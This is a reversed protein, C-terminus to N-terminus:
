ELNSTPHLRSLASHFKYDRPDLTFASDDEKFDCNRRTDQCLLDELDSINTMWIFLDQPIFRSLKGKHGDHRIRPM